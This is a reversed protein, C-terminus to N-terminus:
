RIAAALDSRSTVGLKEYARQLHNDVTRSSLHLRAAIEKSALGQAALLAVERERKSLPTPEDLLALAPPRAGECAAALERARNTAAGGSPQILRRRTATRATATAHDSSSAASTSPWRAQVSKRGHTESPPTAAPNMPARARQLRGTAWRSPAANAAIMTGNIM